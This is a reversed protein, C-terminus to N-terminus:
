RGSADQKNDCDAIGCFVALDNAMFFCLRWKNVSQAEADQM